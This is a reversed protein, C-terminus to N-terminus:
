KVRILRAANIGNGDLQVIYPGPQIKSMSIQHIRGAPLRAALVEEGNLKIVRCLTATGSIQLIRAADLYQVMQTAAGAQLGMRTTQQKIELQDLNPGDIGNITGFTITNAGEILNLTVSQTKWETWSATAAFDVSAQQMVGNVSISLTRVAGSGNAYTITVPISGGQSVLVPISLTSGQVANFNAYGDGAFGTNKSESVVENMMGYEAQYRISDVPLFYADVVKDANLTLLIPNTSGTADGAWHDFNWGKGATAVLSLQAGQQYSGSEPTVSGLGQKINVKLSQQPGSSVTITNSSAGLGGMANAARVTLVEGGSLASIDFRNTSVNALYKGNKLVVWCLANTNNDWVLAAGEQKITPAAIQATLAQPQWNDTGGLVKAVTYAAAEAESLTPDLTVTTTNKTYSTRRSNLNILGGNADKSGYEAFVKPVSNMPDGWGTAVPQLIMKTGIFVTRADNWSRGLTYGAAAANGDITCSKFVYGYTDNTSSAATLASKKLAFIKCENFYVDGSGCIFDTTGHIEGNEWYTKSGKSYYTDQTSLLRVNKYVIKKGQEQIAVHRGTVSYSATNGYNAKNYVTLDQLYLNDANRFYLTATTDIGEQISKNYIITNATSQGIFSVNSTPFTTKQNSNGTLEGINYEGDPFFIYFRNSASVKTAAAAMAAKFNGDVGIVFDFKKKEVAGCPLISAACLAAVGFVRMWKSNRVM